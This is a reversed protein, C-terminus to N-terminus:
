SISLHGHIIELTSIHINCSASLKILWGHTCVYAQSPAKSIIRSDFITANKNIYMIKYLDHQVWWRHGGMFLYLLISWLIQESLWTKSSGIKKCNVQQKWQRGYDKIDALLIWSLEVDKEVYLLPVFKLFSKINTEFFIMFFIVDWWRIKRPMINKTTFNNCKRKIKM